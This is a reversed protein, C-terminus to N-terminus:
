RVEQVSTHLRMLAGAPKPLHGVKAGSECLHAVATLRIKMEAEQEDNILVRGVKRCGYHRFSSWRWQEPEISTRASGSM